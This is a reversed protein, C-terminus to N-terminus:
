VSETVSIRQQIRIQRLLHCFPAAEDDAQKYALCCGENNSVETETRHKAVELKCTRNCLLVATLLIHARMCTLQSEARRCGLSCVMRLQMAAGKLGLTVAESQRGSIDNRAQVGTHTLRTAAM